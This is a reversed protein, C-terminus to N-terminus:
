SRNGQMHKIGEYRGMYGVGDTQRDKLNDTHRDTEKKKRLRQGDM